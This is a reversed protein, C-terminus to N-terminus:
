RQTPNPALSYGSSVCRPCRTNLIAVLLFFSIPKADKVKWKHKGHWQLLLRLFMDKYKFQIDEHYFKM